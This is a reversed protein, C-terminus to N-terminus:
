RLFNLRKSLFNEHIALWRRGPFMQITLGRRLRQMVMILEYSRLGSRGHTIRLESKLLNHCLKLTVLSRCGHRLSTGICDTGTDGGGIVIIDKDKASITKIQHKSDLLSRTNATLFDMAFHIGDLDRGPTKAFFDNPRTSGVGYCLLM